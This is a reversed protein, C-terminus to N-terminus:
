YYDGGVKKNKQFISARCIGSQGSSPCMHNSNCNLCGFYCGGGESRGGRGRGEDTDERRRHPGDPCRDM